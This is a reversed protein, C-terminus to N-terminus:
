GLQCPRAADSARTMTDTHTLVQPIGVIPHARDELLMRRVARVVGM